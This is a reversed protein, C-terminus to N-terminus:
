IIYYVRRYVLEGLLLRRSSRVRWNNGEDVRKKTHTHSAPDRKKEKTKKYRWAGRTEGERKKIWRRRKPKKDSTTPQRRRYLFFFAAKISFFSKRKSKLGGGNSRGYPLSLLFSRFLPGGSSPERRNYLRTDREREKCLLAGCRRRLPPDLEIFWCIYRRGITRFLEFTSVVRRSIISSSGNRTAPWTETQYQYYIYKKFNYM